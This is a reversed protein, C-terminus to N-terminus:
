GASTPRGSAAFIGSSDTPRILLLVGAGALAATVLKIYTILIPSALASEFSM